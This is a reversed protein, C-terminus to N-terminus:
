RKEKHDKTASTQSKAREAKLKAARDRLDSRQEATLEEKKTTDAAFTSVTGLVFASAIVATILKKM